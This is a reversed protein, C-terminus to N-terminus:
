DSVTVLSKVLEFTDSGIGPVKMLENIDRFPGNQRRYEIIAEARVGGIGPLAELLWAEARNINVKQPTKEEDAGSINLKVGTLDAGDTFGGAARIVEEISDGSYLPYFGPNNIAGDVYIRGLLEQGPALSIEIAQSRSSKSWIFACGTIIIAILLLAMLTWGNIFRSVKM